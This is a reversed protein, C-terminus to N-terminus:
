VSHCLHPINQTLVKDLFHASASILKCHLNIPDTLLVVFLCDILIDIIINQLCLLVRKCSVSHFFDCM